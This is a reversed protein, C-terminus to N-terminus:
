KESSPSKGTREILKNARSIGESAEQASLFPIYMVRFVGEDEQHLSIPLRKDDIRWFAMSTKKLRSLNERGKYLKNLSARIEDFTVKEGIYGYFVSGAYYKGAKIDTTVMYPEKENAKKDFLLKIPATTPKGFFDPNLLQVDRAQVTPCLLFIAFLIILLKM